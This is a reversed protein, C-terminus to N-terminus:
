YELKIKTQLRSERDSGTTHTADLVELVQGTWTRVKYRQRVVRREEGSEFKADLQYTADGRSVDRLSFTVALDVADGGMFTKLEEPTLVVAEHVRLPHMWILEHIPTASNTDQSVLTSLEEEERTTMERGAAGMKMDLPTLGGINVIYKGELLPTEHREGDAVVVEDAREVAVKLQTVHNGAAAAIEERLVFTKLTEVSKSVAQHTQTRRRVSGVVRPPFKVEVPQGVPASTPPGDDIPEFSLGLATPKPAPRAPQESAPHHCAAIAVLLLRKM